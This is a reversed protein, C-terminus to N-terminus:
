FIRFTSPFCGGSDFDFDDGSSELLSILLSFRIASRSLKSSNSKPRDSSLSNCVLKPVCGGKAAAKDAFM